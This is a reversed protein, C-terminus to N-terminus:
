ATRVPILDEDLVMNLSEDWVLDDLAGRLQEDVTAPTSLELARRETSVEYEAGETGGIPYSEWAVVNVTVRMDVPVTEPIAWTGLSSDVDVQTSPAPTLDPDAIEWLLRLGGTYDNAEWTLTANGTDQDLDIRLRVLAPTGPIAVSETATPASQLYGPAEGIARINPDSGIPLQATYVDDGDATAYGALRWFGDALAYEVRARYSSPQQYPFAINVRVRRDDGLETETITPPSLEFGAM